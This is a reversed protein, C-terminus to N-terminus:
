FQRIRPRSHNPVSSPNQLLFCDNWSKMRFYYIQGSIDMKYIQNNIFNYTSFIGKLKILIMNTSPINYNISQPNSSNGTTTNFESITISFNEDIRECETLTINRNIRLWVGDNNRSNCVNHINYVGTLSNDKYNFTILPKKLLDNKIEFNVTYNKSCASNPENVRFIISYNSPTLNYTNGYNNPTNLIQKLDFTSNYNFKTTTFVDNGNKRVMLFGISSNNNLNPTINIPEDECYTSKNPTIDGSVGKPFYKYDFDQCVDNWFWYQSNRGYVIVKYKRGRKLWDVSAPTNVANNNTTSNQRVIGTAEEIVRIRTYNKGSHAYIKFYLEDQCETTYCNSINSNISITETKVKESKTLVISKEEKFKFPSSLTILFLLLFISKFHYM